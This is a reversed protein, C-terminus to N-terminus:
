TLFNRETLPMFQEAEISAVKRCVIALILMKKEHVDHPHCIQVETYCSHRYIVSRRCGIIRIFNCRMSPNMEIAM